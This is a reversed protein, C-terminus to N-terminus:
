VEEEGGILSKLQEVVNGLVNSKEQYKESVDEFKSMEAANLTPFGEFVGDVVRVDPNEMMFETFGQTIEGESERTIKAMQNSYRRLYSLLNIGKTLKRKVAKSPDLERFMGLIKGFEKINEDQDFTDLDTKLRELKRREQAIEKELEQIAESLYKDKNETIDKLTAMMSKINKVRGSNIVRRLSASLKSIKRSVIKDKDKLMEELKEIKNELFVRTTMIDRNNSQVTEIKRLAREYKANVGLDVDRKKAREMMSLRERKVRPRDVLARPKRGYTDKQTYLIEFVKLFDIPEKGEVEYTEDLIGKLTRDIRDVNIDKGTREEKTQTRSLNYKKGTLIGDVLLKGYKDNLYDPDKKIMTLTSLLKGTSATSGLKLYDKMAGRVVTVKRTKNRIKKEVVQVDAKEAIDLLIDKQYDLESLEKYADKEESQRDIRSGYAEEELRAEREAESSYVEEETTLDSEGEELSTQEDARREEEEEENKAIKIYRRYEIMNQPTLNNILSAKILSVNAGEDVLSSTEEDLNAKRLVSILSKDKALEYFM